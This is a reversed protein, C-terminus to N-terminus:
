RRGAFARVASPFKILGQRSCPKQQLPMPLEAASPSPCRVQAVRRVVELLTPRNEVTATIDLPLEDAAAGTPRHVPLPIAPMRFIQLTFVKSWEEMRCTWALCIRVPKNM